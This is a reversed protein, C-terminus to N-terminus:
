YFIPNSILSRFTSLSRVELTITEPGPRLGIPVEEPMQFSFFHRQFQVCPPSTRPIKFKLLKSGSGLCVLIYMHVKQLVYTSDM